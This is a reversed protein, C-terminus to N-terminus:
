KLVGDKMEFIRGNKLQKTNNIDCCTIITQLGSINNLLFNQRSVDLESFVDDLLMVPKDDFAYDLIYSEALKIALVCSRQQGQSGFNKVPKDDLTIILDDRHIGNLTYGLKLDVKTFAKQREYYYNILEKNYEIEKDYKSLITSNYRFDFHEKGGSMGKYYETAAIKLKKLYDIRLVTIYAGSKALGTDWPYLAEELNNYKIYNKIINNRQALLKNYTQLTKLYNVRIESVACDLFRRRIDPSGKIFNLYDPSFIVCKFKSFLESNGKIPVGNLEIKKDKRSEGFHIKINQERNTEFDMEINCFKKDFNIFEKEKSNRFSRLGTFLYIAEILNTKGQANDGVIVNMGNSPIFSTPSLNRFNETKVEKIIM